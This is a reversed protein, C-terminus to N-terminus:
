EELVDETVGLTEKIFLMPVIGLVGLMISM